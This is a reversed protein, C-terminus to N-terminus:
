WGGNYKPKWNHALEYAPEIIYRNYRPDFYVISEELGDAPEMPIEIEEPEQVPEQPREQPRTATPREVQAPPQRQVPRQRPAELPDPSTTDASIRRLEDNATDKEAELERSLEQPTQQMDPEPAVYGDPVRADRATQALKMKEADSRTQKIRAFNQKANAVEPEVPPQEAPPSQAVHQTKQDLTKDMQSIDSPYQPMAQQLRAERTKRIKDLRAQALDRRAADPEKKPYLASQDVARIYSPNYTRYFSDFIDPLIRLGRHYRYYLNKAQMLSPLARRLRERQRNNLYNINIGGVLNNGTQPHSYAGLILVRPRPDTRFKDYQFNWLPAEGEEKLIYAGIQSVELTQAATLKM